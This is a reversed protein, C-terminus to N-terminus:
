RWAHLARNCANYENVQMEHREKRFEELSKQFDIGSNTNKLVWEAGAMFIPYVDVVDIASMDYTLKEGEKYPHPASRTISYTQPVDDHGTGYRLLTSYAADASKGTCWDMPTLSYECREFNFQHGTAEVQTGIPNGSERHRMYVPKGEAYAKMIAIQENINQESM